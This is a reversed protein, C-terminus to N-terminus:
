KTVKIKRRKSRKSTVSGASVQYRVVWRRVGKRGKVTASATSSTGKRSIRRGRKNKGKATVSYLVTAGPYEQLSLTILKKTATGTPRSPVDTSSPDLCDANGNGNDDGDSVGCGCVGPVNKTSDNPCVDNELQFIPSLTDTPSPEPSVINTAGSDFTTLTGDDSVFGKTSNGNPFTNENTESGLFTRNSLRDIIFVDMNDDDDGDVIESDLSAFAVFRADSSLYGNASQNDTEDGNNKKSLRTTTENVRDYLFVDYVGNTDNEVLNSAISHYIIYNGDNSIRPELCFGNAAFLDVGLSVLKTEGTQRDHLFINDTTITQPVLTTADTSFVVFRGDGSMDLDNIPADSEDGESSVSVRVTTNSLTSHVFVDVFGNTDGSVLNSALSPFAIIRGDNSVAPTAFNCSRENGQTPTEGVNYSEVSVLSMENETRDLLFCDTRSNADTEVLNSANSGFVVFNGDDSVNPNLSAGNPDGSSTPKSAVSLSNLDKDFLIIQTSSSADSVFNDARGEFVVVKNDGSVNARVANADERDGSLPESVRLANDANAPSLVVFFIVFLLSIRFM